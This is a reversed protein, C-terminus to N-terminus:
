SKLGNYVQRELQKYVEEEIMNQQKQTLGMFQRGNYANGIAKDQAYANDLYITDKNVKLSNLMHGTLTLDVKSSKKKKAYAPKYPKFPKNEFDKGSQTRAKISNRVAILVKQLNLKITM